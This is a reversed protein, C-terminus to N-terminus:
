AHMWIWRERERERVCVILEGTCERFCENDAHALNTYAGERKDSQRLYKLRPDNIYDKVEKERERWLGDSLILEFDQITQRKLSSWLIDIGGHRNSLYM